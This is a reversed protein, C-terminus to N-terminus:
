SLRLQYLECPFCSRTAFFPAMTRFGFSDELYSRLPQLTAVVDDHERLREGYM